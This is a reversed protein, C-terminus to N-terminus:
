SYKHKTNIITLVLKRTDTTQLIQLKYYTYNTTQLKYNTTDTDALNASVRLIGPLRLTMSTM